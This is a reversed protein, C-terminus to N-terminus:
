VRRWSTTSWFCPLGARGPRPVFCEVCNGRGAPARGFSRRPRRDCAGCCARAFVLGCRRPWSGDLRGPRTSGESEGARGTCRSRRSSSTPRCTSAGRRLRQWIGWPSLQPSVGARRSCACSIGHRAWMLRGPALPSSSPRGAPVRQARRRRSLRPTAADFAVRAEACRSGQRARPACGRCQVPPVM